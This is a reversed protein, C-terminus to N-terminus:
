SKSIHGYRIFDVVAWADQTYRDIAEAIDSEDDDAPLKAKSRMYERLDDPEFDESWVIKNLASYFSEEDSTDRTHWTPTKLLSDFVEYMM